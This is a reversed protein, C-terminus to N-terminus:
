NIIIDYLFAEHPNDMITSVRRNQSEEGRKVSFLINLQVCIAVATHRERIVYSNM